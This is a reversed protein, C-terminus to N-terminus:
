GGGYEAPAGGALAMAILAVIIFMVKVKDNGAQVLLWNLLHLMPEEVVQSLINSHIIGM